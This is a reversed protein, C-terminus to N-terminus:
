DNIILITSPGNVEQYRQGMLEGEDDRDSSVYRFTRQEGQEPCDLMVFATPIPGGLDSAETVYHNKERIFLFRNAPFSIM